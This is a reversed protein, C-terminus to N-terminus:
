TQPDDLERVALRGGILCHNWSGFSVQFLAKGLLRHVLDGSSRGVFDNLSVVENGIAGSPHV